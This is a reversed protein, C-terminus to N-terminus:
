EHEIFVIESQPCVDFLTNTIESQIITIRLNMNGTGSENNHAWFIVAHAHNTIM